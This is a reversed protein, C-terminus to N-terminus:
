SYYSHFLRGFSSKRALVAYLHVKKYDSILCVSKDQQKTM